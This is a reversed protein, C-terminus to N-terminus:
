GGDSREDAAPVERRREGPPRAVLVSCRAERVVVTAVSGLLLRRLGKAGTGGVVILEVALKDAAELIARDAPGDEVLVTVDDRRRGTLREVADLVADVILRSLQQHQALDQELTDPTMPAGPNVHLAHLVVLDARCALAERAAARLVAEASEGVLPATQSEGPRVRDPEWGLDIACLVKRFAGM